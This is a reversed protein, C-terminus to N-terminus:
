LRKRSQNSPLKSISTGESLALGALHANIKGVYAEIERSVEERGSSQWDLECHARQVVQYSWDAFFDPHGHEKATNSCIDKWGTEGFSGLINGAVMLGIAQTFGCRVEQHKYIERGVLCANTLRGAAEAEQGLVRLVAYLGLGYDTSQMGLCEILTAARALDEEDFPASM